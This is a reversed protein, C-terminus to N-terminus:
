ITTSRMSWLAPVQVSIENSWPEAPQVNPILPLPQHRECALTLVFMAAHSVKEGTLPDVLALAALPVRETALCVVVCDTVISRVKCNGALLPRGDVM